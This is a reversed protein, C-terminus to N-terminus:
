QFIYGAYGVVHNLDGSSVASTTHGVRKVSNLRGLKKLINMVLFAPHIGCMSIKNEMVTKYLRDPDLTELAEMALSDLEQTRKESEFHNMDSSIILLPQSKQRRLIKAWSDAAERLDELTGGGLVVGVVRTQPALRAILPLLVEIAHEQRHSVEDGRFGPIGHIVEEVLETNNELQGGGFDWYQQPAVAWRSGVGRHKPCFIVVTEPIRVQCLVDMALQGSYIWGAHPVLVASAEVPPQCNPSKELMADLMKKQEQASAPYFMGAVAAQRVTGPIKDTNNLESVTTKDFGSGSQSKQDPNGSKKLQFYKESLQCDPKNEMGFDNFESVLAPVSSESVHWLFHHLIPLGEFRSLRTKNTKWADNPLGAKQCVAELFTRQDMNYDTAVGPLLLGRHNQDQIQIGHKGIEIAGIRAEGQEAVTEMGWLVWVEMDLEVFEEKWIPYFRPDEKAASVAAEKLAVALPIPEHLYGMCSRLKKKKKFSVFAGLVSLSALEGLSRAMDPEAVRLVTAAVQDRAAKFIRDKSESSFVPPKSLNM